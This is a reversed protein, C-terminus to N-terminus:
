SILKVPVSVELMAINKNIYTMVSYLM